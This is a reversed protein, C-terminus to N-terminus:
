GKPVHASGGFTDVSLRSGGHYLSLINWKFKGRPAGGGSEMHVEVGLSSTKVYLSNKLPRPKSLVDALVAPPSCLPQVTTKGASLWRISELFM